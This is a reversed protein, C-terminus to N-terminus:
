TLNFTGAKNGPATFTLEVWNMTHGRSTLLAARGDISSQNTMLNKLQPRCM